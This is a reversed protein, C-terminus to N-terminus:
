YKGMYASVVVDKGLPTATNEIYEKSSRAESAAADVIVQQSKTGKLPSICHANAM